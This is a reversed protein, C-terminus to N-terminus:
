INKPDVKDKKFGKLKKKKQREVYNTVSLTSTSAEDGNRSEKLLFDRSYLSSKVEELTICNKGVSLSIFFKEYSPLLSALMIMALDEYELKVDIDYLELLVFNLRNLHDKLLTVEKM